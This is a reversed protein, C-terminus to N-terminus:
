LKKTSSPKRKGSPRRTIGDKKYTGRTGTSGGAIAHGEPKAGPSRRGSTGPMTANTNTTM